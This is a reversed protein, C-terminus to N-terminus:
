QQIQAQQFRVASLPQVSLVVGARLSHDVEGVYVGRLPLVDDYDRGHGIKLHREGAPQANTPDVGWWGWGPVAVEVWAHTQVEIEDTTPATGAAEAYFYGSVYRAPLGVARLLALSLHVFDQCVGAGAEFVQNVDVGIETAGPRYELRSRVLGEVGAVAEQLTEWDESASQAIDALHPSWRTHRTPQLFEWMTESFAPERLERLPVERDPQVRPETLAVAEAVVTLETHPEDVGFADVRTGWADVYTLVRASPKVDLHYSQLHQGNGDAPCARLVNHSNRVPGPYTFHSQYRVQLEM